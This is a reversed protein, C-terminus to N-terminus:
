VVKHWYTGDYVFSCADNAATTFDAAANPPIRLCMSAYGSGPSSQLNHLVVVEAFILTIKAGTTRGTTKIFHIATTGTVNFVDTATTIDISTAATISVPPLPLLYSLNPSNIQRWVGGCYVFAIVDGAVTTYNAAGHIALKFIPDVVTADHTLICAGDFQLVVISGETWDTASIGNITTTGTIDFVNGNAALTVNNASAVDTGKATVLRKLCKLNLDVDTNRTATTTITTTYNIIQNLGYEM